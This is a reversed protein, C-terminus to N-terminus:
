LKELTLGPERDFKYDIHTINSTTYSDCWKFLPKYAETWEFNIEKKSIHFKDYLGFPFWGGSFFTILALIVLAIKLKERLMLKSPKEQEKKEEIRKNLVDQIFKDKVIKKRRKVM